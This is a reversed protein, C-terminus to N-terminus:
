DVTVPFCPGREGARRQESGDEVGNGGAVTPVGGGGRGRGGQAEGSSGLALTVLALTGVATLTTRRNM